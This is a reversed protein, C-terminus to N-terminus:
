TGTDMAAIRRLEERRSIKALSAAAAAFIVSGVLGLLLLPYYVVYPQRIIAAVAGAFLLLLGVACGIKALASATKKSKGATIGILLGLLGFLCGGVTGIWDEQKETWWTKPVPSSTKSTNVPASAPTSVAAPKPAPTPIPPPNFVSEISTVNPYQVLELVAELIRVTGGEPLVLNLELRVPPTDMGERNFPLIFERGKSDGSIKAAPGFDALTRSFHRVEKGDKKFISWMEFYGDGKVYSYSVVGRIAYIQTTILPPTVVAIPITSSQDAEAVFEINVGGNNIRYNVREPPLTKRIPIDMLNQGDQLYAHSLGATAFFLVLFVSYKILM